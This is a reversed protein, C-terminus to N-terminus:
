TKLILLNPPLDLAANINESIKNGRIDLFSLTLCKELGFGVLSEILNNQLSLFKLNPMDDFADPSIVRIRNFAFYVTQVNHFGQIKNITPGLDLYGLRITQLSEM